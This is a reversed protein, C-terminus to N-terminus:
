KYLRHKTIDKTIMIFLSKREDESFLLTLEDEVDLKSFGLLAM